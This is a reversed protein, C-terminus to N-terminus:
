KVQSDQNENKPSKAGKEMLYASIGLYCGCVIVVEMYGLYHLYNGPKVIAPISAATLLLFTAGNIWSKLWGTFTSLILGMIIVLSGIIGPIGMVHPLTHLAYAAVIGAISGPIIAKLSELSAHKEMGWYWFLLLGVWVEKLGLLSNILLYLGLYLGIVILLLGKKWLSIEKFDM